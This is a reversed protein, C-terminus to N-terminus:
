QVKHDLIVKRDKAAPIVKQDSMVAFERFGRSVRHGQTDEQVKLVEQDPIALLDLRDRTEGPDEQVLHALFVRHGWRDRNEETVKQVLAALTVKKEKLVKRDRIM